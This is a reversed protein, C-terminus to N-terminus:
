LHQPTSLTSCRPALREFARVRAEPDDGAFLDGIVAVATAGAAVVSPANELTIGGIAVIPKGRRPPTGCRPRPRARTYGTDKTATRLGARGRRLERRECGAADVQERDHTSLGVIADPGVIARVDAVPLDTRDSTCAAAGAM